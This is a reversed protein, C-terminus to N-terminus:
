QQKENFFGFTHYNENYHHKVNLIIMFRQSNIKHNDISLIKKKIIM